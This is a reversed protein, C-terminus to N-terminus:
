YFHTRFAIEIIRNRSFAPQTPNGHPPPLLLLPPPSPPPPPPPPHGGVKKAHDSRTLSLVRKRDIHLKEKKRKEEWTRSFEAVHTRIDGSLLLLLFLAEWVFGRSYMCSREIYVSVPIGTTTTHRLLLLLCGFDQPTTTKSFHRLLSPGSIM